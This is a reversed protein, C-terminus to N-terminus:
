YESGWVLAKNPLRTDKVKITPFTPKDSKAQFTVATEFIFDMIPDYIALFPNQWFTPRMEKTIYDNLFVQGKPYAEVFKSFPMRFTPQEKMKPAKDNAVQDSEKSGWLQQIPEGTVKDYMVLNNELQTFAALDVKQGDIEPTYAMGLNTLGCYTMVVEEGGLTQENGAIHPRLLHRDSHARAEGNIDIVIVSEDASYHKM